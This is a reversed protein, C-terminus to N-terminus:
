NRKSPINKIYELAQEFTQQMDFIYILWYLYVAQQHRSEQDSTSYQSKPPKGLNAKSETKKIAMKDESQKRNLGKKFQKFEQSLEHLQNEKLEKKLKDQYHKEM